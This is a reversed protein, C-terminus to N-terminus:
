REGTQPPVEDVWTSVRQAWASQEGADAFARRPLFHVATGGRLVLSVGMEDDVVSQYHSWALRSDSTPTVVRLGNEAAVVERHDSLTPTQKIVARLQRRRGSPSNSFLLLLGFVIGFGAIADNARTDIAVLSYVGIAILLAGLLM